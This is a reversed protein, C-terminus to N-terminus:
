GGIGMGFVHLASLSDGVCHSIAPLTVPRVTKGATLLIAASYESVAHSGLWSL